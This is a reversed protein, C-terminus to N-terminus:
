PATPSPLSYPHQAGDKGREHDDGLGAAVVLAGKVRSLNPVEFRDAFRARTLERRHPPTGPDREGPEAELSAHHSRAM